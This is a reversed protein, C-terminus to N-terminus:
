NDSNRGHEVQWQRISRILRNATDEILSDEVNGPGTYSEFFESVWSLVDMLDDLDILDIPLEPIDINEFNLKQITEIVLSKSM